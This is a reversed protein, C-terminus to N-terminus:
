KFTDPLDNEYLVTDGPKLLTALVRQADNFTDVVHLNDENFEASLVGKVLSQRNYEGVIIAVDLNEGIHRGLAENLTDQEAGLEIMGPTVIIRKGDKFHALVDVAM